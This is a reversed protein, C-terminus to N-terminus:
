ILIYSLDKFDQEGYTDSGAWNPDVINDEWWKASPNFRGEEAGINQTRSVTPFICLHETDSRERFYQNIPWAWSGGDHVIVSEKWPEGVLSPNNTQGDAGFIGGRSQIYNWTRRPMGFGGGCEFWARTFSIAPHVGVPLLHQSARRNFPCSAFYLPNDKIQEYTWLMYPIYDWAPVTDDELHMMFDAGEKEFAAELVTKTNGACGAPQQHVLVHVNSAHKMRKVIDLHAETSEQSHWDLGIIIPIDDLGDLWDLYKIVQEFYGPRKWAKITIVTNVM